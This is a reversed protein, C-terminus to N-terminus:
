VGAAKRDSTVSLLKGRFQEYLLTQLTLVVSPNNRGGVGM